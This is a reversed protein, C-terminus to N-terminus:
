GLRSTAGGRASRRAAIEDILDGAKVSEASLEAIKAELARWQNVLPARKEPDSQQISDWVFAKAQKLEDLRDSM